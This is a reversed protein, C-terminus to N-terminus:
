HLDFIAVEADLEDGSELKSSGGIPSSLTGCRGGIATAHSGCFQLSQSRSFGVGWHMVRM